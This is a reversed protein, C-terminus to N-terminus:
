RFQYFMPEREGRPRELCSLALQHARRSYEKDEDGAPNGISAHYGSDDKAFTANHVLLSKKAQRRLQM